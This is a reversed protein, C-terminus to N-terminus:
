CAFFLYSVTGMLKVFPSTAALLHADPNDSSVNLGAPLPKDSGPAKTATANDIRQKQEQFYAGNMM